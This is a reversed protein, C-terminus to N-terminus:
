YKFDDILASVIDVFCSDTILFTGWDLSPTEPVPVNKTKKM